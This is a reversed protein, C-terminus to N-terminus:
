DGKNGARNTGAGRRYLARVRREMKGRGIESSLWSAARNLVRRGASVSPSQHGIRYSGHKGPGGEPEMRREKEQHV